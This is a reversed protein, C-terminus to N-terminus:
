SVESIYLILPKLDDRGEFMDSIVVWYEFMDPGHIDCTSKRPLGYSRIQVKKFLNKIAGLLGFSPSENSPSVVWCKGM